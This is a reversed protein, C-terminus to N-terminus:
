HIEEDLKVHLCFCYVNWGLSIKVNTENVSVLERTDRWNSFLTSRDSGKLLVVRGDALSCALVSDIPHFSACRVDRIGMEDLSHRSEVLSAICEFSYFFYISNKKSDNLHIKKGSQFEAQDDAM